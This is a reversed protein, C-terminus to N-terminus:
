SESYEGCWDDAATVPFCTEFQTEEDVKFVITQPARVRCEGQDGDVKNWNICASCAKTKTAEM